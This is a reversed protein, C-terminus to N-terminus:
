FTDDNFSYFCRQTRETGGAKLAVYQKQNSTYSCLRYSIITYQFVKGPGTYTLGSPEMSVGLQQRESLQM